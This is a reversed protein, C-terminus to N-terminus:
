KRHRIFPVGAAWLPLDLEPRGNDPPGTAGRKHGLWIAGGMIGACGAIVQGLVVWQWM